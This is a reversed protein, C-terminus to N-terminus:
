LLKLLDEMGELMFQAGSEILEDPGHYGWNLGVALVGAKLATEIDGPSDGIYATSEPKAGLEEMTKLLGTPDPKRPFDPCEGHVVDFLGPMKDNIIHQTGRDFKNSLVALKCGHGKLKECVEIAMPFPATLKGVMQEHIEKWYALATEADEQSTGKPVAQLMLARVGNGVYSLIEPTTHTPYDFHELATNTIEVLDPLTHLLTGDLDFIFTRIGTM